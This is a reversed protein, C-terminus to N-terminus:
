GGVRAARKCNLFSFLFVEEIKKAANKPRRGLVLSLATDTCLQCLFVYSLCLFSMLFVYSLFSIPFVYSLCLFRCLFRCLSSMSFVYFLGLFSM